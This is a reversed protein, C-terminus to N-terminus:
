DRRPREDRTRLERKLRDTELEMETELELAALGMRSAYAINDVEQDTMHRSYLPIFNFLFLGMLVEGYKNTYCRWKLM